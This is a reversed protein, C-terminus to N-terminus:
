GAVPQAPRKSRGLPVVTEESRKRRAIWRRATEPAIFAVSGILMVAALSYYGGLVALIGWLLVGLGLYLPRALRNWILVPFTLEYTVVLFTLTTYIYPQNHLLGTLDLSRSEPRAMILWSAWGNWWVEQEVKALAMMVYVVAIHIQILRTVVTAGWSYEFEAVPNLANAKRKRLWHDVSFCRGAPALCLYALMLSLVPEYESTFMPARHFYSLMVLLTLVSTVRTFFGVTFLGVIVLALVHFGWLEGPTTLYNLFSFAAYNSPRLQSIAELPVLGDPGFYRVLDPTYTLLTYFSFAGLLVRLLCVVAPDRPQFWFRNWATGFTQTLERFYASTEQLM